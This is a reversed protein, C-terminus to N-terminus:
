KHIITGTTCEGAIIDRLTGPGQWQIIHVRPVNKELAEFASDMKAIMGAKITGDAILTKAEQVTLSLCTQEEVLVGAVDTLFLLDTCRASAALAAAASDANVNYSNGNIDASIPSVIPVQRDRLSSLVVGANVRKIRGVYGFKRNGRILPIVIFLHETKGSMRRCPVGNARLRTAVRKNITGSLVNEIIRIDVAQTVRIGEIFVTKRNADILAQTIEAGGGHVIIVELEPNSKIARALDRFGEEGEFAQGGIKILIRPGMTINRERLRSTTEFGWRLGLLRTAFRKLIYQEDAL